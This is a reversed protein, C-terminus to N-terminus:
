AGPEQCIQIKLSERLVWGAIFCYVQHLNTM